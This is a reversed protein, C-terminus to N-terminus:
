HTRPANRLDICNCGACSAYGIAFCEGCMTDRYHLLDNQKCSGWKVLEFDGNYDDMNLNMELDMNASHEDLWYAVIPYKELLRSTWLVHPFDIANNLLEFAGSSGDEIAFNFVTDNSEIFCSPWTLFQWKPQTRLTNRVLSNVSKCGNADPRM